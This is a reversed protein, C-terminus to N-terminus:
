EAAPTQLIITVPGSNVLSVEMRAGFVGTEVTIGERRLLDAAQEYLPIAAEPAAAAAFSPRNGKRCDAILTFQSILLVSPPSCADRVSLNMKGEADEFVRLSAIKKAMWAVDHPTDGERVGLLVLLGRGIGARYGSEPVHVEASSVRQVVAKMYQVGPM